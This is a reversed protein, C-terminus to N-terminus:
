SSTKMVLVLSKIKKVTMVPVQVTKHYLKTLKKVTQLIKNEVTILYYNIKKQNIFVLVHGFEHVLIHTSKFGERGEVILCSWHDDCLTAVYALGMISTSVRNKKNHYWLNSSIQFYIFYVLDRVTKSLLQIFLNLPKALLIISQSFCLFM